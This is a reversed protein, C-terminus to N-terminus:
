IAELVPSRMATSKRRGVHGSNAGFRRLCGSAGHHFSRAGGTVLETKVDKPIPGKTTRPVTRTVVPPGDLSQEVMPICVSGDCSNLVATVAHDRNRGIMLDNASMAAFADTEAGIIGRADMEDEQRIMQIKPADRKPHRRVVCPQPFTTFESIKCGDVCWQFVHDARNKSAPSCRTRGMLWMESAPAMRMTEFPGQAFTTFEQM